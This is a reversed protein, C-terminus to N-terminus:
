RLFILSLILTIILMIISQTTKTLFYFSPKVGSKTLFALNQMHISLGGWSIIFGCFVTKLILSQKKACIHLCGNSMEILGRTLGDAFNRTVSIKELLIKLPYLIYLDNLVEALMYFIVIFGGVILVSIVSNYICESLLNDPNKTLQIEYPKSHFNKSQYKRFILGNLISSIIQSILLILGAVYSNLLGIGISGLVFMPSAMSCFSSIRSSESSDIIGKTYFDDILKAGIPYGSIMSMFFIYASVGSTKFLKLTVPYFIKALKHAMGLEILILSFFLFPFTAPLITTAWVILGDLTLQSYKSPNILIATIIICVLLIAISYINSLISKLPRIKSKISIM